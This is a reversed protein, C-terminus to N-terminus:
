RRRLEAPSATTSEKGNKLEGRKMRAKSERGKLEKLFRGYHGGDSTDEAGKGRPGKGLLREGGGTTSCRRGAKRPSGPAERLAWETLKDQGELECFSDGFIERSCNVM